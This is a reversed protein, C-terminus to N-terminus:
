QKLSKTYSVKRIPASTNEVLGKETTYIQNTGKYSIVTIEDESTITKQEVYNGSWFIEYTLNYVYDTDSSCGVITLMLALVIALRIM